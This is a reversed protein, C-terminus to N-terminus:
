LEQHGDAPPWSAHDRLSGLIRSWGAESAMGTQMALAGSGHRAFNSHQLSVETTAADLATFRVEIQSANGPLEQKREASVRWTLVLRDPPEWVKVEGWDTRNGSRDVEFWSGGELHEIGAAVFEPGSFTLDTPWWTGLERTFVEFVHTLPARVVVKESIM